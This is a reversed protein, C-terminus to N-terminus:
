GEGELLQVGCKELLSSLPVTRDKGGLRKRAIRLKMVCKWSVNSQEDGPEHMFENGRAM